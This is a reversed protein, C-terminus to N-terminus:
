RGLQSELFEHMRSLGLMPTCATWVAGGGDCMRWERSEQEIPVSCILLLDSRCQLCIDFWSEFIKVLLGGRRPKPTNFMRDEEGRYFLSFGCGEGRLSIIGKM